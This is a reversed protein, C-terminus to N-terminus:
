KREEEIIKEYALRDNDEKEDVLYIIGCHVFGFKEFSKQMPINLKYTDARMAKLHHAEAIKEAELFFLQSLGHGRYSASVALTHITLYNKEDTLWKGEYIIKYSPDDTLTLAGIAELRGGIVIGYLKKLAVAKELTERDPHGHQWQPSHFLRLFAKGDEVIEMAREIDKEELRVFSYIIKEM